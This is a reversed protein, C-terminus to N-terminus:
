KEGKADETTFSSEEIYIFSISKTVLLPRTHHHSFDLVLQQSVPSWDQREASVEPNGITVRSARGVHAGGLLSCRWCGDEEGSGLPKEVVGTRGCGCQGKRLSCQSWKGPTHATHRWRESCRKHAGKDRRPDTIPGRGSTRGDGGM